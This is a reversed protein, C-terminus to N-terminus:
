VRHRHIAFLRNRWMVIFVNTKNKKKEEERNSTHRPKAAIHNACVKLISSRIASFDDIVQRAVCIGCSFCCLCSCSVLLYNQLRIVNYIWWEYSTITYSYIYKKEKKKKKKRWWRFRNMEIDYRQSRVVLYLRFLVSLRSSLSM